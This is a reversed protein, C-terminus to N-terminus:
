GDVRSDSPRHVGAGNVGAGTSCVDFTHLPTTLSHNYNSLSQNVFVSSESGGDGCPSARTLHKRKDKMHINGTSCVDITHLPRLAPPHMSESWSNERWTAKSLAICALAM